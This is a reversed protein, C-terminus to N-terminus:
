PPTWSYARLLATLILLCGAGLLLPTRTRPDCVAPLVLGVGVMLLGYWYMQTAIALYGVGAALLAGSLLLQGRRPGM